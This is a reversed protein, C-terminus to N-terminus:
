NTKLEIDTVTETLCLQESKDDNTMIVSRLNYLMHENNYANFSM